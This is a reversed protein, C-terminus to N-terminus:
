NKIKDLYVRFHDKQQVDLYNWYKRVIEKGDILGYEIGNIKLKHKCPFSHLCLRDIEINDNFIKQKMLTLNEPIIIPRFMGQEMRTLPRFVDQVMFTLSPKYIDQVMATLYDREIMPFYPVIMDNRSTLKDVCELCLDMSDYGICAKLDNKFCRDCQVNKSNDYHSTAPYYYRGKKIIDKLIKENM